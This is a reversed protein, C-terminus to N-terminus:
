FYGSTLKRLRSRFVMKRLDIKSFRPPVELSPLQVNRSFLCQFASNDLDCPLWPLLAEVLWPEKSCVEIFATVSLAQDILAGTKKVLYQIADRYPENPDVDYNSAAIRYDFSNQLLVAFEVNARLYDDGDIDMITFALMARELFNGRLLVSLMRAFEHPQVDIKKGKGKRKLLAARCLGDLAVTHTLGLNAYLFTKFELM